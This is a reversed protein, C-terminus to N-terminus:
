WSCGESSSSAITQLLEYNSYQKLHTYHVNSSHYQENCHPTFIYLAGENSVITIMVLVNETSQHFM